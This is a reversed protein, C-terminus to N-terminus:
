PVNALLSGRQLYGFHTNKSYVRDSRQRIVDVPASNPRSARKGYAGGIRLCGKMGHTVPSIEPRAAGPGASM